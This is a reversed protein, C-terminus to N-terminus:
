MPNEVFLIEPKKILEIGINVKKRTLLDVKIVDNSSGLHEHASSQIGLIDILEYALYKTGKEGKM